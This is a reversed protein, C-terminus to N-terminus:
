KYYGSEYKNVFEYEYDIGNDKVFRYAMRALENREKTVKHLQKALDNITLMLEKTEKTEDDVFWDPHLEKFVSQVLEHDYYESDSDSQCDWDGNELSIVLRKIIAYKEKDELDQDIVMGTVDDFIETGSCWGM